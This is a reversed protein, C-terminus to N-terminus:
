PEGPAHSPRRFLSPAGLLLLAPLAITGILSRQLVTSDHQGFTLTYGLNAILV